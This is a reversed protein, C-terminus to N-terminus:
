SIEDLELCCSSLINLIVYFQKKFVNSRRWNESMVVSKFQQHCNRGILFFLFSKNTTIVDNEPESKFTQNGPLELLIVTQRLTSAGVNLRRRARLAQGPPFM